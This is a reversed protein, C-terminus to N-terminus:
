NIGKCPTLAIVWDTWGFCKNKKAMTIQGLLVGSVLM